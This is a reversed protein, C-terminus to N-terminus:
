FPRKFLSLVKQQRVLGIKVEEMVSMSIDSPALFSIGAIKPVRTFGHFMKLKYHDPSGNIETTTITKKGFQISSPVINNERFM